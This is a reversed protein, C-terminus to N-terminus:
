QLGLKILISRLMSELSQIYGPPVNQHPVKRWALIQDELEVARKLLYDTLHDDDPPSPAGFGVSM